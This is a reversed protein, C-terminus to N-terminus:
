ALDTLPFENGKYLLPVDLSKACAYAFCDGFNLHARHGVAKGYRASADIARSGIDESIVVNEAGIEVLFRDVLDRAKLLAEADPKRSGAGARAVAQMAEFRVLASVYIPGTSSSLRKVLEEWGPEQNLIGFIVSADVFM